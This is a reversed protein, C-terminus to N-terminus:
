ITTRLDLQSAISDPQPYKATPVEDKIKCGAQVVSLKQAVRWLYRPTKGPGPFPACLSRHPDAAPIAPTSSPFGRRIGYRVTIWLTDICYVTCIVRHYVTGGMAASESRVTNCDTGPSKPSLAGKQFCTPGGHDSILGIGGEGDGASLM